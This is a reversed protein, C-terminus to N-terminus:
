HSMAEGAAKRPAQHFNVFYFLFIFLIFFNYHLYVVPLRSFLKFYQHSPGIAWHFLTHNHSLTQAVAWLVERLIILCAKLVEMEVMDNNEDM